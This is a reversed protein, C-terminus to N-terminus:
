HSPGIRERLAGVSEDLKPGTLRQLESRLAQVLLIAEGKLVKVAELYKQDLRKACAAEVRACMQQLRKAGITATSGVMAHCTRALLEVNGEKHARELDRVRDSLESIFIKILQPLANPDTERGLQELRRADLIPQAVGAAKAPPPAAKADPPAVSTENAAPTQAHDTRAEEPILEASRKRPKPHAAIEALLQHKRVPKSIFSTMGSALMREREQANAHATLAIIPTTENGRAAEIRRIEKTAALGNMVPMEGDMLILDFRQKEFLRVAEQGNNAKVVQHGEAELMRTAVMINTPDDEVLMILKNQNSTPTTVSLRQAPAVHKNDSREGFAIEFWFTSGRGLESEVGTDGGMARALKRCLALGLGTGNENLSRNDGVQSFEKFLKPHDEIAIGPGTDIVSTRIIRSKGHQRVQEVRVRVLGNRTFKIANGLLNLLIQQYRHADFLLSNPRRDLGEVKITTNHKAALPRLMDVSTNVSHALDYADPCVELRGAEIKSLDLMDNLLHLLTEGSTTATAILEQQEPTLRTDSLIDLIGLVGNLPTRIEHSLSAFFGDKAQAAARAEQLRTEATADNAVGSYGCFVGNADSRPSGSLLILREEGNAHTCNVLLNRFLEKRLMFRQEANDDGTDAEIKGLLFLHRGVLKEPGIGLISRVNDSVYTVIGDPDCQWIWDGSVDSLDRLRRRTEDLETTLVQIIDNRQDPSLSAHQAKSSILRYWVLIAAIVGVLAALGSVLVGIAGIKDLFIWHPLIMPALFLLAIAAIRGGSLALGGGINSKGPWICLWAALGVTCFSCVVAFLDRWVDLISM